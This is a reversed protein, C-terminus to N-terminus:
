RGPRLAPDIVIMMGNPLQNMVQLLKRLRAPM